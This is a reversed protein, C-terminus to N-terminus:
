GRIVERACIRANLMAACILCALVLMVAISGTPLSFDGRLSEPAGLLRHWLANMMYPVNLLFGWKTRLVATVMGGVGAPVFTVAFIAGTAM